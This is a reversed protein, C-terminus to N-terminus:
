GLSCSDAYLIKFCLELSPIGSIVRYRKHTLCGNAPDAELLHM